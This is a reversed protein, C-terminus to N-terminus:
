GSWPRGFYEPTLMHRPATRQGAKRPPSVMTEVPQIVRVFGAHQEVAVPHNDPFYTRPDEEPAHWLRHGGTIRWTDGGMMREFEKFENDGGVFGFRIIRPGIDATVILEVQGNAIRRCNPWGKYAVTEVTVNM